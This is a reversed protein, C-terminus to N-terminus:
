RGIQLNTMFRLLIKKMEDYKPFIIEAPKYSVPYEIGNFQILENNKAM